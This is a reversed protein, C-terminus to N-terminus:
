QQWYPKQDYYSYINTAWEPDAMDPWNDKDFGPANKLKEKTVNFIFLENETDVALSHWPVAFLKNGMGMMGGFSLVAYSIRGDDLDIMLDEIHGLDEGDINKVKTGNITSAALNRITQRVSM